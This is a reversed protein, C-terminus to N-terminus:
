KSVIRKRDLIEKIAATVRGSSPRPANPEVIKGEQDILIYRPIGTMLYLEWIEGLQQHQKQNMHVGRFEKDKKLMAHWDPISEDISVFLFAVQDNGEFDKQIKRTFPFETKCPGCWTAWVDMYVVKGKLASLAIKGGEPTEGTFDPAPKGPGIALWKSYSKELSNLYEDKKTTSKFKQYVYNTEPTIGNLVLYKNINQATLLEKWFDPYASKQIKEYAWVPMHVEISDSSKNKSKELLLPAYIGNELFQSIATAYAGLQYQLALSDKPIKNIIQKLSLPIEAQNGYKPGAYQNVFNIVALNGQAELVTSLPPDLSSNEKLHKFLNQYELRLSDIVSLFEDPELQFYYKGNSIEHSIRADWCKVIYENIEAEDGEYRLGSRNQLSDLFIEFEDGPAAFASVETDGVTLLGFTPRDFKFELIASGSSDLTTELIVVQELSVMDTTLAKVKLNKWGPAHVLIKVNGSDKKTCTALSFIILILLLLTNLKNM